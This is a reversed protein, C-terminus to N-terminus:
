RAGYRTPGLGERVAVELAVAEDKARRAFADLHSLVDALAPPRPTKWVKELMWQLRTVANEQWPTKKWAGPLVPPPPSAARSRVLAVIARLEELGEGRLAGGRGLLADLPSERKGHLLQIWAWALWQEDDFALSVGASSLTAAPLRPSVVSPGEGLQEALTASASGYAAIVDQHGTRAAWISWGVVGIEPDRALARLITTEIEVIEPTAREDSSRGIALVMPHAEVASGPEEDAHWVDCAGGMPLVPGAVASPFRRMRPPPAALM